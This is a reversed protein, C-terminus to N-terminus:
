IPPPEYGRGPSRRAEESHRRFGEPELERILLVEPVVEGWVLLLSEGLEEFTSLFIASLCFCCLSM